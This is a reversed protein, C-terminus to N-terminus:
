IGMIDIDIDIDINVEVEFGNMSIDSIWQYVRIHRLTVLCEGGSRAM